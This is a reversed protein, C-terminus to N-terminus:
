AQRLVTVLEDGNNPYIRTGNNFQICCRPTGFLLEKYERVYEVQMEFPYGEIRDGQKIERAPIQLIM